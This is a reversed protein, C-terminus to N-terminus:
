LTREGLYEFTKELNHILIFLDHRVSNARTKYIFGKNFTRGEQLSDISAYNLLRIRAYLLHVSSVFPRNRLREFRKLLDKNKINEPIRLPKVRNFFRTWSSKSFDADYYDTKLRPINEREVSKSFNICSDLMEHNSLLEAYLGYVLRKKRTVYNAFFNYLYTFTGTIAAISVSVIIKTAMDTM